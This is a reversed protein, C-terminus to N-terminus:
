KRWLGVKTRRSAYTAANFDECAKKCRTRNEQLIEDGAHYWEGRLMKNWEPSTTM